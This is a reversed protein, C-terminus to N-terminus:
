ETIGLQRGSNKVFSHFGVTGGSPSHVVPKFHGYMDIEGMGLKKSGPKPAMYMIPAVIYSGAAIARAKNTESDNGIGCAGFWIVGIQGKIKSFLHVNSKNLGSGVEVISDLIKGDKYVIKGHSSFCLHKLSGLSKISSFISEATETPPVTRTTKMTYNVPTGVANLALHPGTLKLKKADDTVVETKVSPNVVVDIGGPWPSGAPWIWKGDREIGGPSGFELKCTGIQAGIVRHIQVDGLVDRLRPHKAIAPNSSKVALAGAGWLAIDAGPEGLPIRMESVSGVAMKHDFEYEGLIGVSPIQFHAM